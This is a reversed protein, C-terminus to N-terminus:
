PRRTATGADRSQRGELDRLRRMALLAKDRTDYSAGGVAVGGRTVVWRPGHKSVAYDFLVAM